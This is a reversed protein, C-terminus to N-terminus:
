CGSRSDFSCAFRRAARRRPCSISRARSFVRLTMATSLAVSARGVDVAIETIFVEGVVTVRHEIVEFDLLGIQETVAHAAADRHLDGDAM